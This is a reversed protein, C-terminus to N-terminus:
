YDDDTLDIFVLGTIFDLIELPDVGIDLGILVAQFGAGFEVIGYNPAADGGVSAEAVSIEAGTLSEIGVPWPISPEGRPGHIGVWISAYTGLFLDVAETARVGVALGPGLRVRARVIDFVDFVRNPIYLAIHWLVGRSKRGEDVEIVEVDQTDQAAPASNADQAASGADVLAVLETGAAFLPLGPITSAVSTSRCGPAALLSAALTFAALLPHVRLTM